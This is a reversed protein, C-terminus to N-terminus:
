VCVLLYESGTPSYLLAVAINRTEPLADVLNGARRVSSEEKEYM